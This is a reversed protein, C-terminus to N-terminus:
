AQWAYTYAVSIGVVFVISSILFVRLLHRRHYGRIAGVVLAERTETVNRNSVIRREGRYPCKKYKM